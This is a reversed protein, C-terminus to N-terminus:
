RQTMMRLYFFRYQTVETEDEHGFFVEHSNKSNKYKDDLEKNAM